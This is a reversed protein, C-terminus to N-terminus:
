TQPYESKSLLQSAKTVFQTVITDMSAEATAGAAPAQGGGGCEAALGNVPLEGNSRLPNNVRGNPLEVV